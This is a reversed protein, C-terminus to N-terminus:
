EIKCKECEEDENDIVVNLAQEPKQLIYHETHSGYDVWHRFYEDYWHRQYYSVFDPYRAALDLEAFEWTKEDPVNEAVLHQKGDGDVFYLNTM